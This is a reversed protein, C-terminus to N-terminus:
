TINKQLSNQVDKLHMDVFGHWAKADNNANQCAKSMAHGFHSGVFPCPISAIFLFVINKLTTTLTVLNSGKNKVYAVIKNFLGFSDFLVM